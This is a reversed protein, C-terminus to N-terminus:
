IYEGGKGGKQTVLVDGQTLLIHKSTLLHRTWKYKDSCLLNCSECYYKIEGKGGKKTVLIDGLTEM